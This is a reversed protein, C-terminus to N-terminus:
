DSSHRILGFSSPPWYRFFVKGVIEERTISGWERSDSSHNRNDGFVYYQNPAVTVTEGEHLFAGSRTPTEIPLYNEPTKVGNVFVSSGEVRLTQGPTAIIRKIFDQSENRPNKLVIIEGDKPAGIRYSVKDTLIFDGSIFTPVMSSGSVKHPQAVFLYIIAFIAGFVVLTQIFDVLNAGIKQFFTKQEEASQGTSYDVKPSYVDDEM